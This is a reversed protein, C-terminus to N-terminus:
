AEAAKSADEMLAYIKRVTNVIRVTMAKYKPNLSLKIMNSKTLNSTPASWLLTGPYYHLEEIGPKPALEDLLKPTDITHRLFIVNCKQSTSASWSEPLHELLDRIETQSRVIVTIPLKFTKNLVAEITTELQRSDSTGDTFI